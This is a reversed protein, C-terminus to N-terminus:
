QLNFDQISIVDGGDAVAAAPQWTRVHIMPMSRDRFDWLLFLYGDDSYRDSSYRQRLTVGYIGDMTPHRLIRFGSFKVSIKSNMAFVRSLRALYEQKSHIAYSVRQEAICKGDTPAAKVVNGVIILAKDSFVQRLFDIDKTTYATRLHECYNLIMHRRKADQEPLKGQMIKAAEKYFPDSQAIANLSVESIHQSGHSPSQTATRAAGTGQSTGDREGYQQPADADPASISATTGSAIQEPIQQKGENLFTVIGQRDIFGERGTDEERFRLKGGRFRTDIICRRLPIAFMVNGGADEVVYKKEKGAYTQEVLQLEESIGYRTEDIPKGEDRAIPLWMVALWASLAIAIVSLICIAKKM